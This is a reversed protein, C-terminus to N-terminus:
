SYELFLGTEARHWRQRKISEPAPWRTTRRRPSFRPRSAPRAGHGDARHILANPSANKTTSFPESLHAYATPPMMVPVIRAGSTDRKAHVGFNLTQEDKWELLKTANKFQKEVSPGKGTPCAV